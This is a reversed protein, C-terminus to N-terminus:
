RQRQRIPSFSSSYRNGQAYSILSNEVLAYMVHENNVNAIIVGSNAYPGSDTNQTNPGWSWHEYNSDVSKGFNWNGFSAAVIARSDNSLRVFMTSSTRFNFIPGLCKGADNVLFLTGPNLVVSVRGSTTIPDVWGSVGCESDLLRWNVVGSHADVSLLYHLTVLYLRGDSSGVAPAAPPSWTWNPEDLLIRWRITGGDNNIGIAYYSGNETLYTLFSLSSDLSLAIPSIKTSSDLSMNWMISCHWASVALIHFSPKPASTTEASSPAMDVGFVMDVGAANGIVIDRLPIRTQVSCLEFSSQLLHRSPSSSSFFSSSLLQASLNNTTATATNINLQPLPLIYLRNVSAHITSIALMTDNVPWAFGCKKYSIHECPHTANPLVNQAVISMNHTSENWYFATVHIGDSCGGIVFWTLNYSAAGDRVVTAFTVESLIEGSRAHCMFLSKKHLTWERYEWIPGGFVGNRQPNVQWANTYDLALRAYCWGCACLLILAFFYIHRTCM